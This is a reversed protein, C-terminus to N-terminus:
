PSTPGDTSYSFAQPYRIGQDIWQTQTVYILESADGTFPNVVIDMGAWRVRTFNNPWVGFLVNATTNKTAAAQYGNVIGLKAGNIDAGNPEPMWIYIPFTSSAVQPTGKAYSKTLPSTLFSMEGTRVNANELAYEFALSKAQTWNGSFTVSADIGSTNIVGLPEALGNGQIAVRDLEVGEALAMDTRVLMEISPTGQALLQKTFSNRAVLRKPSFVLQGGAFNSETVTAGEALWYTTLTSTQKPIAINGVVGSLEIISFPGNGILTVNRLIDIYSGALLTTGVLFGGATFSTANQSRGLASELQTIRDYLARMGNQGLGHVKAFDATRVDQPVCHGSFERKDRRYKAAATESCEKELGSLKGTHAEMFFKAFSFDRLDNDSMGINPDADAGEVRTADTWNDLVLARYADVDMGEDIAKAELAEIPQKLNAKRNFGKTFDRIGTVRAKEAKKHNEVAAREREAVVEVSVGAPETIPDTATAMNKQTTAKKVVNGNGDVSKKGRVQIERFQAPAEPKEGPTLSRGYGLSIDAPVPAWSFEHPTFGFRVIPYGDKTGIEEGEEDVKYGVSTTRLAGSEIDAKKNEAFEGAAWILGGVDCKNGDCAYDSARGLHVDSDHNWLMPLGDKLRETHMRNHDLIEWYYDGMGWDYRLYPESSSISVRVEKKEGTAPLISASRHLTDPIKFTRTSMPHTPKPPPASRAAAREGLRPPDDM